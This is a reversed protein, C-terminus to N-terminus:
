FLPIQDGSDKAIPTNIVKILEEVHIKAKEIITPKFLTNWAIEASSLTYGRNKLDWKKALGWYPSDAIVDCKSGEM